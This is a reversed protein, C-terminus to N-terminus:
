RKLIDYYKKLLPVVTGGYFGCCIPRIKNKSKEPISMGIIIGMALLCIKLMAITKWNSEKCYQNAADFIKQMSTGEKHDKSKKLQKVRLWNM